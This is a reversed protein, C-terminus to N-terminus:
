SYGKLLYGKDRHFLGTALLGWLGCIGHVSFADLPDDILLRKLSFSSISYFIGGLGGILMAFWLDVVDASATISVLGSLLGNTLDCVNLDEIDIKFRKLEFINKLLPAIVFSGLAGTAGAITTHTTVEAAVKENKGVITLTSGANFGYWGFYLIFTGTVVM